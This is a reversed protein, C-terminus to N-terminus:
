VKLIHILPFLAMDRFSVASWSAFPLYATFEQPRSGLTACAFLGIRAFTAIPSSM